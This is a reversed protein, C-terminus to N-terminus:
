EERATDAPPIPSSHLQDLAGRVARRVDLDPDELLPILKPLAELAGLTGLGRAAEARLPASPSLLLTVLERVADRRELPASGGAWLAEEEHYRRIRDLGAQVFVHLPTQGPADAELGLGRRLIAAAAPSFYGTLAQIAAQQIARRQSPPLAAAAGEGMLAQELAPLYRPDRLKAMAHLAGALLEPDRAAVLLLEADVDEPGEFALAELAANIVSPLGEGRTSWRSLIRDRLTRGGPAAPDFGAELRWLAEPALGADGLELVLAIGAADDPRLSFLSESRALEPASELELSALVARVLEPEAGLSGGCAYLLALLRGEGPLSVDNAAARLAALGGREDLAIFAFVQSMTALYRAGPGASGCVWRVLSELDAPTLALMEDISVQRWFFPISELDNVTLLELWRWDGRERCGALLASLGVLGVRKPLARIAEQVAKEGSSARFGFPRELDALRAGLAAIADPQEYSKGLLKEDLAAVVRADADGAFTLLVKSGAAEQAKGLQAVARVRQEGTMHSAVVPLLALRVADPAELWAGFAEARVGQDADTLLARLVELAAPGTAFPHLPVLRSHQGRRTFVERSTLSRALAARVESADDGLAALLRPTPEFQGLARVARARLAPLPHDLLREWLPLASPVRFEPELETLLLHLSEAEAKLVVGEIADILAATLGDVLVVTRVFPTARRTTDPSALLRALVELWVPHACQTGNWYREYNQPGLVNSAQLAELLRLRWGLGGADLHDAILTGCGQPDIRWLLVLPDSAQYSKRDNARQSVRDLDELVMAALVPAAVRGIDSLAGEEGDALLARVIGDLEASAAGFHDRAYRAPGDTVSPRSTDGTSSPGGGSSRRADLDGKLELRLAVLEPRQAAGRAIELLREDAPVAVSGGPTTPREGILLVDTAAALAPEIRGLQALIRAREAALEGLVREQDEFLAANSAGLLALECKGLAQELNGDVRVQLQIARLAIDASKAAIGGPPAAPVALAGLLQAGPYLGQLLPLAERPDEPLRHRAGSLEVTRDGRVALRVSGLRWIEEGEAEADPVKAILLLDGGAAVQASTPALMWFTREARPIRLEIPTTSEEDQQFPAHGASALPSLLALSCAFLSSTLHIHM